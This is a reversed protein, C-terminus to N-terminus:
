RTVREATRRLSEVFLAGATSLPEARRITVGFERVIEPSIIKLAKLRRRQLNGVTMRPLVGLGLGAEVLEVVTYHHFVEIVPKPECGRESFARDIEERMNLGPRMMILAHEALDALGVSSASELPHGLPCIAMFPDSVLHRFENGNTRQLAPGVAFDIEGALLRQELIESAEDFIQVDIRAHAKRFDKLAVPLLSMAISSTCGVRIRGRQVAAHHKLEDVAADIDTLWRKARALLMEGESTLTVRRTTRKFLAVGLYSELDKVHATLAPQSSALEEAAGRFSQNQAVAIFTRLRRITLSM